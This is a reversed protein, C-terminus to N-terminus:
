RPAFPVDLLGIDLVEGATLSFIRPFDQENPVIYSQDMPDGLVLVFEGPVIDEFVFFGDEASQVVPGNATDLIFPWGGPPPTSEKSNGEGYYVRALWVSTQLGRAPRTATSRVIGTMAATDPKAVVKTQRASPQVDGGGPQSNNVLSGQERQCGALLIVLLTFPYFWRSLM